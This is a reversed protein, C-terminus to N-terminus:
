IIKVMFNNNLKFHNKLTNSVQFIIRKLITFIVLLMMLEQYNIIIKVM